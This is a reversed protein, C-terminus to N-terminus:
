RVHANAAANDQGYGELLNVIGWVGLGAGIATVLTQLIGIASTFFAM